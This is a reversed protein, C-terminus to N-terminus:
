EARKARGSARFDSPAILVPAQKEAAEAPMPFGESFELEGAFRELGRALQCPDRPDGPRDALDLHIQTAVGGCEAGELCCPLHKARQPWFPARGISASL